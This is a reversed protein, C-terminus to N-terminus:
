FLDLCELNVSLDSKSYVNYFFLILTVISNVQRYLVVNGMDHVANKYKKVIKGDLSDLSVGLASESFSNKDDADYYIKMIYLHKIYDNFYKGCIINLTCSSCFPMLSKEIVQGETKLENVIKNGEENINELYKKLISFHFAPTLIKRRQRWKKALNITENPVLTM